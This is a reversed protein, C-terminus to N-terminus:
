KFFALYALLIAIVSLAFAIAVRANVDIIDFKDKKQKM